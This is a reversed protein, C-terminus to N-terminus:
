VTLEITEPARCSTADCAQYTLLLKVSRQLVPRAFRVAFKVKGDYIPIPEDAFPFSEAKPPPYEIIAGDVSLRTPTLGLAAEHANIHFGPAINVIANLLNPSEWEASMAVTRNSPTAIGGAVRVSGHIYVYRLAATVLSSMGEGFRELQGAFVSITDRAIDPKNLELMVMAAIANGSPLPTDSATKQRLLMNPDGIATFYFGGKKPDHFLNLMTDSIQVADDRRDLALLGHALLAYDDLFANGKAINDRSTRHLSGDPARHVKLLYDASKQAAALYIPEDLIKGAHAMARIMLGNWSTIIKTDLLPQKRTRRKEYLKQRMPAVKAETAPDLQESLFLINKDPAGHGYHPDAFNPGEAVGYVRNFLEADNAGLVDAIEEATWLYSLGEHADVEADFATYFAGDPSTMERLVFDLIGRAVRAYHENKTQAFAEAYCWALMANDYLMIEFHPVLWHNDTSYRHFAGGLHDRIGGLSLKDLTHLAQELQAPNPAFHQAQLILELLTQRPFKPASGFGGNVPDFDDTSRNLLDGLLKADITINSRAAPPEAMKKLMELIEESSRAAEDHRNKWADDLAMLLRPFGIRGHGDTPPFYTGGYFPKLNPTLFVSMPWGGQGTLVQVANMYLADVDPREERDVKINIFRKNMEAAIQENEFSQREMVHCWYCTSYGVSLFIPKNQARAAAFAEEGWPYWDVPNHAHQLLYPSTERALRNAPM